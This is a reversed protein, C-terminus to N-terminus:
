WWRCRRAPTAAPSTCSTAVPGPPTATPATLSGRGRARASATAPASTAAAPDPGPRSGLSRQILATAEAVRGARTLRTAEAMTDNLQDPM